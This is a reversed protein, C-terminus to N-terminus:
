VMSITTTTRVSLSAGPLNNAYCSSPEIMEDRLGGSISVILTDKQQEEQIRQHVEHVSKEYANLPNSHPTALTIISHLLPQTQPHRIPTLRAVYGGMSHGVLTISAV